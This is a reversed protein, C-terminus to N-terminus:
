WQLHEARHRSRRLPMTSRTIDINERRGTRQRVQPLLDYLRRRSLSMSGDSLDFVGSPGRARTAGACAATGASGMEATGIRVVERLAAYCGACDSRNGVALATETAAM